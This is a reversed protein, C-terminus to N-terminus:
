QNLARTVVCRQSSHRIFFLARADVTQITHTRLM